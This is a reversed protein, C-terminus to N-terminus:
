VARVRKVATQILSKAQALSPKAGDMQGSSVVIETAGVRAQIAYGDIAYGGVSEVIHFAVDQAAKAVTIPVAKVSVKIDAAPAGLHVLQAVIQKKVCGTGKKSQLAKFYAKARATSSAVDAASEIYRAVDPSGIDYGRNRATFSPKSLGLCKYMAAEDAADTPAAQIAEFEWGKLDKQTLVGAKALKKAHGTSTTAANATAPVALLALACGGAALARLRMFDIEKTPHAGREM